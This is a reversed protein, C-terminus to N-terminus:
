CSCPQDTSESSVYLSVTGPHGTRTVEPGLYSLSLVSFDEPRIGKRSFLGQGLWWFLVFPCEFVM